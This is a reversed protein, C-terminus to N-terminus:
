ADGCKNWAWIAADKTGKPNSVFSCESCLVAWKFPVINTNLITYFKDIHGKGNCKPCPKIEM